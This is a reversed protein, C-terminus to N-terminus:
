PALGEERALEATIDGSAMLPTAGLVQEVVLRIREDLRCDISSDGVVVRCGGRGVTADEVLTWGDEGRNPDLAARLSRADRPDVHLRLDRQSAPLDLLCHRVIELVAAPDSELERRALEGGV